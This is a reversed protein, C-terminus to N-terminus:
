GARSQLWHSAALLLPYLAVWAWLFRNLGFLAANLLHFLAGVSLYALAVRPGLLALPFSCEFLLVSWSALRGGSSHALWAQARAPVGYKPLAAFRALAAGERWSRQALKAVGAVFYSLTLQAVLYGLALLYLLSGPVVSSAVGLCILSLLSLSDSGGNFPGRLRLVLALQGLALALLLPSPGVAMVLLAMVLQAGLVLTLGGAAAFARPVGANVLLHPRWIGQDTFARR